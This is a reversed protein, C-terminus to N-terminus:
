ADDEAAPPTIRWAPPVPSERRFARPLGSFLWRFGHKESSEVPLVAAADFYTHRAARKRVSRKM